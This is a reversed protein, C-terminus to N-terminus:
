TSRRRPTPPRHARGHTPTRRVSLIPVEIQSFLLSLDALLGAHDYAIIQIEASFTGSADGAWAVEVLREPENAVIDRVNICDARHM